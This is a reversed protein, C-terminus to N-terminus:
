GNFAVGGITMLIQLISLPFLWVWNVFIIKERSWMPISSQIFRFIFLLFIFKLVFLCFPFVVELYSIDFFVYLFGPIYKYNVGGFFLFMYFILLSFFEIKTLFISLPTFFTKKNQIGISLFRFYIIVFFVLAAIPQSFVGWNPLFSLNYSQGQFIYELSGKQSELVQNIQGSGYFLISNLILLGLVIYTGITSIVFREEKVFSPSKKFLVEFFFKTTTLFFLLTFFSFIEGSNLNSKQHIFISLAIPFGVGVFLLNLKQLLEKPSKIKALIKFLDAGLSFQFPERLTRHEILLLVKRDVWFLMPLVIFSIFIFSRFFSEIM